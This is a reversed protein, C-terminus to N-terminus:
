VGLRNRLWDWDLKAPHKIYEDPNDVVQKLYSYNLRWADRADDANESETAHMNSGEMQVKYCAKPRDDYVAMKVKTNALIKETAGCIEKYPFVDKNNELARNCVKLYASFLQEYENETSSTM